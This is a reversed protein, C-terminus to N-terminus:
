CSTALFPFIEIMKIKKFKLEGSIEYITQCYFFDTQLVVLKQGTSLQGHQRPSPRQGGGGLSEM